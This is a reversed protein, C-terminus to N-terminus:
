WNVHAVNYNRAYRVRVRCGCEAAAIEVAYDAVNELRVTLSHKRLLTLLRRGEEYRGARVAELHKEILRYKVLNRKLMM